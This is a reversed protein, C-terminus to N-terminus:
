KTDYYYRHRPKHLSFHETSLLSQLTYWFVVGRLNSDESSYGSHTFVVGLTNPGTVAPLVHQLPHVHTKGVAHPM